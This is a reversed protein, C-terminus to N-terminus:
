RADDYTSLAIPAIEGPRHCTQCHAQLLPEIDKHFEVAASVPTIAAVGAVALFTLKAEYVFTGSSSSEPYCVHGSCGGDFPQIPIVVPGPPSSNIM